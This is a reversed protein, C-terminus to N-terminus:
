LIMSFMDLFNPLMRVGFSNQLWNMRWVISRGPSFVRLLVGALIVYLCRMQYRSQGELLYLIM